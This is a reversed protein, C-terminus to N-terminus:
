GLVLIGAQLLINIALIATTVKSNGIMEAIDWNKNIFSIQAIGIGILVIGLPLRYVSLTPSSVSTVLGTIILTIGNTTVTSRKTYWKERMAWGAVPILAIFSILLSSINFSLINELPM